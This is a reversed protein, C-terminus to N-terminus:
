SSTPPRTLELRLSRTAVRQSIDDDHTVLVLALGDQVVRAVLMSMAEQQAIPDLRSTPEDAFLLAPRALLVRALALRQLEGGSVEHPRRALLGPSLRLARLHADLESRDRGHLRLADDLSRGLPARPAFAAVPDQHLKQFATRALGTARRVVGRDPQLLGLLVNCLTTKGVGSPGRIAIRDAARVEISLDEFLPAGRGHAKAIGDAELLLPASAHAAAAHPAVAPWRSPMAQVLRRTFAHAPSALVHDVEGEEVVAGDLLVALRGGLRQAVRLDHTIAVVCGGDALVSRMADVVQDRRPHDLGKTPEDALLIRAGGALAVTFVARQAMGGSLQWPFQRQIGELGLSAFGRSRATSGAPGTLVSTGTTRRGGVTSGAGDPAVLALVEDLQKGLRMLPDLARMPEQPVMTMVRGWSARRARPADAASDAGAVTVRGEARLAPPLTGIVAQALLSKGAGSEGVIAIAQGPRLEFSVDRLLARESSRVSLGRVALLPGRLEVPAPSLGSSRSAGATM